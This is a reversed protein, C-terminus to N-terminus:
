SGVHCFLQSAQAGLGGGCIKVNAFKRFRPHCEKGHEDRISKENGIAVPRSGGKGRNSVVNGVQTNTLLDGGM